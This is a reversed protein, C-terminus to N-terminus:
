TAPCACSAASEAYVARFRWGWGLPCQGIGHLPSVPDLRIARQLHDVARDGDGDILRLVGSIFWAFASGPNLETAPSILTM